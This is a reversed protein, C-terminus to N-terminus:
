LGLLGPEASDNEESRGAIRPDNKAVFCQRRWSRHPRESRGCHSERCRPADRTVVNRDKRKKKPGPTKDAEAMQLLAGPPCNRQCGSKRAVRKAPCWMSSM